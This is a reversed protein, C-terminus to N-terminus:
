FTRNLIHLHIYVCFFGSFIVKNGSIIVILHNNFSMKKQKVTVCDFLLIHWHTSRFGSYFCTSTGCAPNERLRVILDRYHSPTVYDSSPTLCFGPYCFNEHCCESSWSCAHATIKVCKLLSLGVPCTPGTWLCLCVPESPLPPRATKLGDAHLKQVSGKLKLDLLLLPAETPHLCNDESITLTLLLVALLPQHKWAPDFILVSCLRPKRWLCGPHVSENRWRATLLRPHPGFFGAQVAGLGAKM